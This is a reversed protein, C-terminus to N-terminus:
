QSRNENITANGFHSDNLNTLTKKALNRESRRRIKAITSIIDEIINRRVPNVSMVLKKLNARFLATFSM